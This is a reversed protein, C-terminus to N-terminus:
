NKPALSKVYSILQWLQPDPLRSWSPMGRRPNGNVLLWHLDGETAENQVRTSKLSPRDKKGEADQGHCSVCHEAFLLQGAQIAEPQDKLPNTKQHERAPVKTLWEGAAAGLLFLLAPLLWIWVLSRSKM